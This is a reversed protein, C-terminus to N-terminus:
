ESFIFTIEGVVEKGQKFTMTATNDGEEIEVNLGEIDISYIIQQGLSIVILDNHQDEVYMISQHSIDFDFGSVGVEIEVVCNRKANMKEIMERVIQRGM